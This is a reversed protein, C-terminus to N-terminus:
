NWFIEMEVDSLDVLLSFAKDANEDTEPRNGKAGECLILYEILAKGVSEPPMKCLRTMLKRKHLALMSRYRERAETIKDCLALAAEMDVDEGHKLKKVLELYENQMKELKTM